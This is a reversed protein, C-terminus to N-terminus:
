AMLDWQQPRRKAGFARTSQNNIQKSIDFVKGENIMTLNIELPALDAILKTFEACNANNRM